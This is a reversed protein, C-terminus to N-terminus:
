TGGLEPAASVFGHLEKGLSELFFGNGDSPAAIREMGPPKSLGDFM